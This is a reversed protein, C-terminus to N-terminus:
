LHMNGLQTGRPMTFPLAAEGAIDSYSEAPGSAGAGAASATAAGAAPSAQARLRHLLDRYRDDMPSQVGQPISGRVASSLAKFFAVKCHGAQEVRLRREDSSAGDAVTEEAGAAQM